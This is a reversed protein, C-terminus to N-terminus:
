PLVVRHTRARVQLRETDLRRDQGSQSMVCMQLIGARNACQQAIVIQSALGPRISRPRHSEHDSHNRALRLFARTNSMSPGKSLAALPWEPAFVAVMSGDSAAQHSTTPSRSARPA